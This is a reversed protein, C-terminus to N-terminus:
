NCSDSRPLLNLTLECQPILRDWKHILYEEDYTALRSKLHNKFIQSAKKSANRWHQHPLVLKSKSNNSKITLKIHILCKNDLIYYLPATITLNHFYRNYMDKAYIYPCAFNNLGLHILQTISPQQRVQHTQQM